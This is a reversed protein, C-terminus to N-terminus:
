ILLFRNVSSCDDFSSRKSQSLSSYYLPTSLRMIIASRSARKRKSLQPTYFSVSHNTSRTPHPRLSVASMKVASWASMDRRVGIVEGHTRSLGSTSNPQQMMVMVSLSCVTISTRAAHERSSVARTDKSSPRIPKSPSQSRNFPPPKISHHRMVPLSTLSHHSRPYSLARRSANRM